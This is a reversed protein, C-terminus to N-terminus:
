KPDKRLYSRQIIDDKIPTTYECALVLAGYVVVETNQMLKTGCKVRLCITLCLALVLLKLYVQTYERILFLKIPGGQKVFCGKGIVRLDM